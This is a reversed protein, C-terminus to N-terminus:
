PQASLNSGGLDSGSVSGSGSPFGAGPDYEGGLEALPELEVEIVDPLRSVGFIAVTSSLGALGLLALSSGYGLIQTEVDAEDVLLLTALALGPSLCGAALGTTITACVAPIGILPDPVRPTLTRRAVQYGEAQVDVDYQVDFGPHETFRAGEGASGLREGDVRVQAAPVNSQITVEHACSMSGIASFAALAAILATRLSATRPSQPAAQRPRRRRHHSMANEDHGTQHQIQCMLRNKSALSSPREARWRPHRPVTPSIGLLLFGEAFRPNKSRSIPNSGVVEVKALNCEVM